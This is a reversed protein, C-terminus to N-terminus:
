TSKGEGKYSGEEAKNMMEQIFEENQEYYEKLQKKSGREPLFYLITINLSNFDSNYERIFDIFAALEIFTRIPTRDHVHFYIPYKRRYEKDSKERSKTRRSM